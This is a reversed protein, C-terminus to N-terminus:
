NFVRCDGVGEHAKAALGDFEVVLFVEAGEGPAAHLLGNDVADDRDGVRGDGGGGDRRVPLAGKCCAMM